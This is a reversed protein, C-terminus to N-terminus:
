GEPRVLLTLGEVAVVRVTSGPAAGELPRAPWDSDGVRVRDAALMVGARGVLGSGPANVTSRRAAARPRLWALSLGIGLGLLLVFALLAVPLSPELLLVLLGTGLAAAGVWILFAGPLLMEAAMMLLGAVVWVSWPLSM